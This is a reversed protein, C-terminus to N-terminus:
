PLEYREMLYCLCDQRIIRQNLTLMSPMAQRSLVLEDDRIEFYERTVDRGHEDLAIVPMECDPAVRGFRAGQALERFNMHDLQPDLQLDAELEGFSFTRRDGIKVTAVTHFLNVNGSPLPKSPFHDLHLVADIFAVAHAEATEDDPKGCEITVSPCIKAFAAAQVGLPRLFYVVTPAFLTALHLFEPQLSNVCGYHPNLGTNNHIDISAFVDCQRMADVIQGMMRYEARAALEPTADAGPWIRNYDPQEDLRRLGLAAAKVNGFFISLARPLESTAYRGVIDQVAKLGTYENGHLLVSVFLPRPKRGPLHMLTPGPLVQHLGGASAELFGAPIHDLTTLM